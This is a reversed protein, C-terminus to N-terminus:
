IKFQPHLMAAKREHLTIYGQKREPHFSFTFKNSTIPQITVDTHIEESKIIIVNQEWLYRGM